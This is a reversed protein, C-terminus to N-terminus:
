NAQFLPTQNSDCALHVTPHINGIGTQEDLNVLKGLPLCSPKNELIGNTTDLQRGWPRHTRAAKGHRRRRQQKGNHARRSLWFREEGQEGGWAIAMAM